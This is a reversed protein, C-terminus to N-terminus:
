KRIVLLETHVVRGRYDFLQLIYMGNYWGDTSVTLTPNEAQISRNSITEGMISSVKLSQAAINGLLITFENMAPNPYISVNSDEEKVLDQKSESGREVVVESEEYFERGFLLGLIARAYGKVGMKSEAVSELFLSDSQQMEYELGGLLRQINIRQVQKFTEVEEVENPLADLTIIAATYDGINMQLGYKMLKSAITNEIDLLQIASDVDNTEIYSDILENLIHDKLELLRSFEDEPQGNNSLIIDVQSKVSVYDARTPKEAAGGGSGCVDNIANNIVYNGTTVPTKCAEKQPAYYRFSLTQNETMIDAVQVPDTFCNGAISGFNGQQQRIEGQPGGSAGQMLRFDWRASFYNCLFQMERNQGSAIIGSNASIANNRIYNHQNWGMAGTQHAFVGAETNDFTNDEITFRSPGVLFISTNSEFFENNIISLGPGFESANSEIHFWNNLFYNPESALDGLELYASYPYTAQCSIGRRNNLFDNGDKIIAGADYTLIGQSSMNYFRCRNFTVNDTDWITVGVGDGDMTCNIFKSKNKFDYKMFEAVRGNAIFNSNEAHILGGWHALQDLYAMGPATTSIATNANEILSNNKILVVGADDSALAGFPDSQEKTANGHVRIGCWRTDPCLNTITGGDVILKAGRQVIIRQDKGMRVECTITLTAGTEIEVNRNLLKLNDWVPNTGSTIYLRPAGETCNDAWSYKPTNLSAIRNFIKEWQCPTLAREKHGQQMINNGVNWNCKSVMEGPNCQVTCLNPDCPVSQPNIGNCTAIGPCIPDCEQEPDIDVNKCENNCWSVHGLSLSHGMEHNLIRSYWDLDQQGCVLFGYLSIDCGTCSGGSYCAPNGTLKIDIVKADYVNAYNNQDPHFWIGGHVDNTNAPDTYIKYKYKAKPVFDAQVGNPGPKDNQELNDLYFNAKEILDNALQIGTQTDFGNGNADEYFHVNVYVTFPSILDYDNFDVEQACNPSASTGEFYETSTPEWECNMQASIPNISACIFIAILLRHM